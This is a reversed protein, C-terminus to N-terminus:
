EENRFFQKKLFKYITKFNTTKCIDMAISVLMAVTLGIVGFFKFLLVILIVGITIKTREGNLNNIIFNYIEKIKNM